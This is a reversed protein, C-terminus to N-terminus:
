SIKDQLDKEARKWSDLRPQNKTTLANAKLATDIKINRKNDQRLGNYSGLLSVLEFGPRPQDCKM